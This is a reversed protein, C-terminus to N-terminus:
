EEIIDVYEKAIFTSELKVVRVRVGPHRRTAAKAAMRAERICSYQKQLQGKGEVLVFYTDEEEALGAMKLFETLNRTFERNGYDSRTYRVVGPGLLPNYGVVTLEAGSSLSYARIREGQKYDDFAAQLRLQDETPEPMTVEKCPNTLKSVWRDTNVISKM